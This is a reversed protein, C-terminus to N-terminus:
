SRGTITTKVTSNSQTTTTTRMYPFYSVYAYIDTGIASTYTKSVVAFWTSKDPSAEINVTVAGTNVSVNIFITKKDYWRTDVADGNTATTVASLNTTDDEVHLAPGSLMIRGM